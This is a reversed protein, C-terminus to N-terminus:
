CLEASTQCFSTSNQPHFLHREKQICHLVISSNLPILYSSCYSSSGLACTMSSVSTPTPGHLSNSFFVTYLILLIVATLRTHIPASFRVSIAVSFLVEIAHGQPSKYCGSFFLQLMIFLFLRPVTFLLQNTM